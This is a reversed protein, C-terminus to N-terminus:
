MIGAEYFSYYGDDSVIIHDLVPIAQIKGIDCLTKTFQIDEKSPTLNGSPHNHLCIISSASRVYAEKFVERPHTISRNITGMFLLKREILKQANDLYLCYFYEQKKGIFLYRTANYIEAPTKLSTRFSLEHSLFIRKGLEIASMVELGKVLGIGKLSTLQSLTLNKLESISGVTKLLDISVQLVSKTKTGTKIVIALLEDDSLSEMGYKLAKERPRVERPLEKIMYNVKM